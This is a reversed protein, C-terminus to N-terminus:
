PAARSDSKAEVVSRISAILRSAEIPKSVHDTFGRETVRERNFETFATVAIAPMADEEAVGKRKELARVKALVAFGDEEPMALDLLLVDPRNQPLREELLAVLDAGTALTQVEAGAQKLTLSIVDRADPDDDLSCVRVGQLANEAITRIEVRPGSM